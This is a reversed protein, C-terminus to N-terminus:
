DVFYPIKVELNCNDLAVIKVGIVGVVDTDSAEM